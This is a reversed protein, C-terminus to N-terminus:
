GSGSIDLLKGFRNLVELKLPVFEPQDHGALVRGVDLGIVQNLHGAAVAALTELTILAPLYPAHEM